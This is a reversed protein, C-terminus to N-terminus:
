PKAREPTARVGMFDDVRREASDIAGQIGPHTPDVIKATVFIIVESDRDITRTNKFAHGLVPIDGLLPVKNVGVESKRQILGSLVMTQGDQVNFVTEVMRETFSVRGEFVNSPESVEAKIKAQVMGNSSIFPTVDVIVGYREYRIETVGLGTSVALPIRGGVNMRAARGNRATLQPESLIAADGDSVLLNIKSTLASALGFFSRFPSLRPALTEAVQVTGDENTQVFIRAGNGTSSSKIDGAIGFAPGNVGETAWNIGLNHLRDRNKFEVVKVDLMVMRDWGGNDKQYETLNVVNEFRKTLAAIRFLGEDGLGKGDVVVKEGVIFVKANPLDALLTRVEDAMKAIDAGEVRVKFTRMVNAADWIQVTTAGQAGGFLMVERNELVVATVVKDTGVVVRTSRLGRVLRSEGIRMSVDVAPLPEAATPELPEKVTRRSPALGKLASMSTQKPDDGGVAAGDSRRQVTMSAPVQNPPLASPLPLSMSTKSPDVVEIVPRVLQVPQTNSAPTGRRTITQATSAQSQLEASSQALAAGSPGAATLAVITAARLWGHQRTKTCFSPIVGLTLHKTVPRTFPMVLRHM